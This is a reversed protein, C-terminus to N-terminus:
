LERPKRQTLANNANNTDMPWQTLAADQADGMRQQKPGAHEITNPEAAGIVYYALTEQTM